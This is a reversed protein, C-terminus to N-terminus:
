HKKSRRPDYLPSRPAQHLAECVTSVKSLQTHFGVVMPGSGLVVTGHQVDAGQALGFGHVPTITNVPIDRLNPAKPGHQQQWDYPLRFITAVMEAVEEPTMSLELSDQDANSFRFGFNTGNFTSDFGDFKPAATLDTM